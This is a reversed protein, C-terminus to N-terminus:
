WYCAGEVSESQETKYENPRVWEPNKFLNLYCGDPLGLRVTLSNSEWRKGKIGFLLQLGGGIHISKKGRKKVHTALPFGYAGCGLLCIDYDCSDIQNEMWSLAHFWDKFGCPQGGISQVSKITKLYFDPLIDPNDFLLERKKYQKEILEAFPHVVLVKKGKLVRTWPRKSIFADYAYLPVFTSNKIYSFVKWIDTEIAPFMGCMDMEKADELMLECFRELNDETPPFFGANNMMSYKVGENWWWDITEGKIYKFINRNNEKISLYNIICSLEVAGFRAIMCPKDSVLLDYIMDSAKDADKEQPIPSLHLTGFSKLYLKRLAKLTYISLKNM